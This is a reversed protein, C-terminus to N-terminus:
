RNIVFSAAKKKKQVSTNWGGHLGFGIWTLHLITSPLHHYSLQYSTLLSQYSTIPLQHNTVPSQ